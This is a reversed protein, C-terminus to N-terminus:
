FDIISSYIEFNHKSDDVVIYRLKRHTYRAPPTTIHLVGNVKQEQVKHYHGAIIAKINDHKALMDWYNEVMYLDHSSQKESEPILPFHQFIIVKKDKYKTLQEDLWTLQAERFYGNRSPIVEKMGDVFIFILGNHKVVFNFDKHKQHSYQAVLKAYTVKDLKQSKFCDHNGIEIYYPKNLKKCMKLFEVLTKKQAKDINDGTFVIFEADKLKTNIFNILDDFNQVSKENLAFHLDTVQIFETVKAQAQSSFIVLIAFVSLLINFFRKM